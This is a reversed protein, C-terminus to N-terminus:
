QWFPKLKEITARFGVCDKIGLEEKSVMLHGVGFGESWDVEEGWKFQLAMEEGAPGWLETISETTTEVYATKRGMVEGWVKLMEGFTIFEAAVLVYKGLTKQPQALIASTWQGPITEMDGTIGITANPRTPM